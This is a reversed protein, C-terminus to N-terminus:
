AGRYLGREAIHRAVAPPLLDDCPLGERLRRRVESSSHPWPEIEVVSVRGRFAEPITLPFGPRTATVFRALSLVEDVKYWRHLDHLVDAGAVFVLEEEPPLTARLAALTDRTYSPGPRLAEEDSVGLWARGETALRAMAVREAVPATERGRKLPSERAPVLLVRDLGLADRVAEALHIHGNHIPDFTGGLIGTRSM